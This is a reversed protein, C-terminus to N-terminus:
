TVRTSTGGASAVARSVDRATAIVAPILNRPEIHQLPVITGVAAVVSGDELFVPSAVGGATMMVQERSIAVRQRRIDPLMRRIAEPDTVTRETLAELPGELMEDQVQPDAYALLVLGPATVHLPMRGGLRNTPLQVKQARLSEVYIIERNDQIALHVPTRTHTHLNALYPLALERFKLGRPSLSALELIRSGIRYQGTDERELAGWALLEGVLRHTTTLTLGARRSIDTLSLESNHQGFADLVSLVRGAATRTTGPVTDKSM